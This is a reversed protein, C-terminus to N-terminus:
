HTFIENEFVQVPIQKTVLEPALEALQQGYYARRYIDELEKILPTRPNTITTQDEFAKEALMSVKALFDEERVGCQAITTPMELTGLLDRVARILSAVGEEPTTASLGLYRAIEQYKEPAKFYEYKPFSVFKSPTQANYEIVYPLLVANTRGHPLHFEGGLKHALCHNIGLFANTFAMGAITSI